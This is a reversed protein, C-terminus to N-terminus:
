LPQRRWTQWWRALDAVMEDATPAFVGDAIIRARRYLRHKQQAALSLIEDTVEVQAGAELVAFDHAHGLIEGLIQLRIRQPHLSERNMRELIRTQYWLYKTWKRLKHFHEDHPDAQALRWADRGKQWTRGFGPALDGFGAVPLPWQDVAALAQELMDIAEALAAGSEPSPQPPPGEDEEVGTLELVTRQQVYSDRAEGVRKGADRFRRDADNFAECMLPGPLRLLARMKKCRSRLSHIQLDVSLLPDRYHGLVRGIQERAIRRLGEDPREHRTLYFTM